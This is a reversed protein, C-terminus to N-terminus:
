NKAIYRRAAPSNRCWDLMEIHGQCVWTENGDPDEGLSEVIGWCPEEPYANFWSCDDACSFEQGADQGIAESERCKQPNPSKIERVYALAEITSLKSCGGCWEDPKHFRKCAPCIIRSQSGSGGCVGCVVWKGGGDVYGKCGGCEGCTDTPIRNLIETALSRLGQNDLCRLAAILHDTYNQSTTM